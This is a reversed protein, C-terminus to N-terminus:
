RESNMTEGEKLIELRGRGVKGDFCGFVMVSLPHKVTKITFKPNFREESFEM